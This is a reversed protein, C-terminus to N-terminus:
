LLGRVDAISKYDFRHSAQALQTNHRNGRRCQMLTAWTTERPCVAHPCVARPCVAQSRMNVRSTDVYGGALCRVPRMGESPAPPLRGTSPRAQTLTAAGRRSPGLHARVGPIAHLPMHHAINRTSRGRDPARPTLACCQRDVREVGAVTWPRAAVSVRIQRGACACAPHLAPHLRPAPCFSRLSFCRMHRPACAVVATCVSCGSHPGETAHTLQGQDVYEM